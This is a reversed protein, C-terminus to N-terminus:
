GNGNNCTWGPNSTASNYSYGAYSSSAQVDVVMGCHFVAYSPSVYGTAQSNAGLFSYSAFTYPVVPLLFFVFLLIVLIAINRGTHSQPQQQPLAM